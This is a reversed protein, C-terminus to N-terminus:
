QDGDRRKGAASLLEAHVTNPDRYAKLTADVVTTILPELGSLPLKLEEPFEENRGDRPPRESTEIIGGWYEVRRLVLQRAYQAAISRRDNEQADDKAAMEPDSAVLDRASNTWLEFMAITLESTTSIGVLFQSHLGLYAIIATLAHHCLDSSADPVAIPIHNLRTGEELLTAALVDQVLERDRAAVISRLLKQGKASKWGVGMLAGLSASLKKAKEQKAPNKEIKKM